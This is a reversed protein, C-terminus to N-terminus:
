NVYNPTDKVINSFIMGIVVTTVIIIGLKIEM